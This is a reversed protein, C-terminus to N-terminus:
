FRKKSQIGVPEYYNLELQNAKSAILQKYEAKMSVPLFSQDIFQNWTSFIKEFKSFIGTAVKGEMHARKFAASFDARNIKKKKGNLTLALEEKDEKHVLQTAVLDYAPALMYGSGPYNILSFNKLHMDANGTLFSFIIQEYFNVVDLVPNTSFKLIVKAIQEYSGDYKNETLRETLQCMDEMHLKESKNRDIRKTIYALNGSHLRILSHPVTKIRSLEALHMTLDEVEPLHIYTKTPPKLIYGGILGVISFRQSKKSSDSNEIDLSLKPQVGTVTVQSRIVKQALGKMDNETYPLEPPVPKGFIKRSCAPHFDKESSELPHYCYLCQNNKM